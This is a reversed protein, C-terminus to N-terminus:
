KIEELNELYWNYTDELGKRLPIKSEFGLINKARTVDLKRNKQGDPYKKNWLIKGTFGTIERILEALDKIKINDSPGVNIPEPYDIKDTVVKFLLNALESANLFARSAEGTGWCEVYAQNNVKAEHFKRILAPIVHSKNLDFCDFKGYMNIPMLFLGKININEKLYAEHLKLLSKKSHGYYQNSKEELGNFLDEEKFPIHCNEPYMCISGINCIYEVNYKDIAEFLNIAMKLNLYIMNFPNLMNEKIGGCYAAMHLVSTIERNRSFYNLVSSINLLDLEKSSPNLYDRFNNQEFIKILNKGLFGNGGLILLSM